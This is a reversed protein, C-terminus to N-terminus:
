NNGSMSREEIELKRTLREFRAKTRGYDVFDSILSAMYSSLEANAKLLDRHETTQLARGRDANLHEITSSVQAALDRLLPNIRDIAQQQWPSATGRANELKAVTQGIKNIDEKILTIQSAHSQWTVDSRTFAEMEDAAQSLAAAQAKAQSLLSSVEESDEMPAAGRQAPSAYVFGAVLLVLAPLSVVRQTLM